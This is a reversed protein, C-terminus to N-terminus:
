VIREKRCLQITILNNISVPSRFIGFLVKQIAEKFFDAFEVYELINKFWDILAWILLLASEEV